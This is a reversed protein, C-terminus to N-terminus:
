LFYGSWVWRARETKWAFGLAGAETAESVSSGEREAQRAIGSFSM